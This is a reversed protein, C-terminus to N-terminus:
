VGPTATLTTTGTYTGPPTNDANAAAYFRIRIVEQTSNASSKTALNTSTSNVRGVDTTDWFAYTTTNMDVGALTHTANLGYGETGAAITSTPEVSKITNAGSVLGEGTGVVAMTWGTTTNTGVNLRIASSSGVEANGGTDVLDPALTTSSESVTFAIWEQVIATVDVTRQVQASAPESGRIVPFVVALGFVAILGLGTLIKKRNKLIFEEM